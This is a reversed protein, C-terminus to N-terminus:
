IDYTPAQSTRFERAERALQAMTTNGFIQELAESARAWVGRTVCESIRECDSGLCPVLDVPGETALLVDAVTISAPDRALLFGGNAGRRSEVLGAVKLKVLIQEVYDASIGEGEAIEQKRAPRTGDAAALFVM